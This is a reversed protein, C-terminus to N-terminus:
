PHRVFFTEKCKICYYTAGGITKKTRKCGKKCKPCPQYKPMDPLVETM